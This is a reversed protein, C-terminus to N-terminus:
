KIHSYARGRHTGRERTVMAVMSLGLRWRFYLDGRGDANIRVTCMGVFVSFTPPPSIFAMFAIM